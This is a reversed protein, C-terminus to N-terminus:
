RNSRRWVFRLGSWDKDIVAVKVDVIGLPLAERRVIMDTIDSIHGGARRPWAVWLAGDPHIRRALAPLRRPLEDARTFFAVILEAPASADVFELGAPPDALAWGSPPEDLSLLQGPRLGLKRAQAIVGEAPVAEIAQRVVADGTSAM